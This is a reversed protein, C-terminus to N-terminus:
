GKYDICPWLSGDKKRVFFFGAGALSSSPRIIGAPLSNDISDEMAGRELAYLSYLGGKPPFTGPLLNIACDYPRHPPLSTAKSKIFVARLSHYCAHVSSIDPAPCPVEPNVPM